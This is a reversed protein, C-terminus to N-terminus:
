KNHFLLVATMTPSLAPMTLKKHKPLEIIVFFKVIVLILDALNTSLITATLKAKLFLVILVMVLPFILNQLM